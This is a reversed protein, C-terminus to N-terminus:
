VRERCSARGIETVEGWLHPRLHEPAPVLTCLGPHDTAQQGSACGDHFEAAAKADGRAWTAASIAGLPWRTHTSALGRSKGPSRSLSARREAESRTSM